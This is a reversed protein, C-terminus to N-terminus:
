SKPMGASPRTPKTAAPRKPSHSATPMRRDPRSQPLGALARSLRRCGEEIEHTKVRSISLRFALEDPPEAFFLSGPTIAVREAAALDTLTREDARRRGAVRAWLTCGGNPATWELGVGKAHKELSRLMVTMRRRFTAHVRRLHADYRGSHLFESVAAQSLTNGSLSSFRNLWLLRRACEREAAIWGVRLGPFVVKSLTGVYLVGGRADMSKLPLAAKGFYKMEEEFGDELIPVRRAECLALLRERHPQTASIGTPNQFTPMTYVLAPRERALCADLADLDMGDARMPVAIPRLGHLRQLPLMLGYTPSEVVISAGPRALLRVVLDLAQQAGHTLLIEDAGVTIGHAAMRRALTERLPAFGAADGYDLLTRGHHLMVRRLARRLDDSPCLDPDASLSAFDVWGASAVAPRPQATAARFASLAGPAMAEDWDIARDAPAVAAARARSRITSYSGPRSELYGLAWLEEYARCVTSRNVRLQTALVRTPPLREGHALVGDEVLRVTGDVLQKWLPSAAQRDLYPLQPM